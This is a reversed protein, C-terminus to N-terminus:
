DAGRIVSQDGDFEGPPPDSALREPVLGQNCLQQECPISDYDGDKRRLKRCAGQFEDFIFGKAAGAGGQRRHRTQSPLWLHFL